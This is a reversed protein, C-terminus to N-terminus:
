KMSTTLEIIEFETDPSDIDATTDDAAVAVAVAVADTEAVADDEDDEDEDEDSAVDEDEMYESVVSKDDDNNDDGTDSESCVSNEYYNTIVDDIQFVDKDVSEFVPCGLISDVKVIYRNGVLIYQSDNVSFARIRQTEADAAADTAHSIMSLVRPEPKVCVGVDKMFDKYYMNVEYKSYPLGIYDALDKRGLNSYLYWQLFKKDMIINKEVYFNNPYKMDIFIVETATSTETDSKSVSVRLEVTECLQYSKYFKRYNDCLSTHTSIRFDGRHIRARTDDDFTHIIFDYIDNHTDTLEPEEDNNLRRYIDCENDIWKCVHNKAPDVKKINARTSKMFVHESKASFLERGNKVVTYTSFTYYGCVRLMYIVTNSLFQKVGQIADFIGTQIVSFLLMITNVNGTTFIIYLMPFIVYLMFCSFYIADSERDLATYYPTLVNNIMGPTIQISNQTQAQVPSLSPDGKYLKYYNNNNCYMM